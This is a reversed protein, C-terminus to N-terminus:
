SDSQLGGFRRHYGGDPSPLAGNKTEITKSLHLDAQEYVLRYLDRCLRYAAAGNWGSPLLEAPMQPDRLLVTRYDQILLTRILFATKPAIFDSRSIADLAPRFQNVFHSYRADIDSLDWSEHALRRMADDSHVTHGTMVVVNDAVGLRRLTDNLDETNPMPHAMVNTSFSGFGLWGCEKRVQDRTVARLNSLLLVSWYGDWAQAPAGYIRHTASRFRERGDATLSYFAKRGDQESELWGDNALRFVSTRVLRESVGFEAMIAILSGLWLTGGRPAISDGFVTTILSGARITPRSRFEDVLSQCFTDIIM